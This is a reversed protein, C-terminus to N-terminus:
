RPSPMLKVGNTGLRSSSNLEKSGGNLALEGYYLVWDVTGHRIDPLIETIKKGVAASACLGTLAEFAANVALIEYDAPLGDDDCLIKFFACGVPSHDLVLRYIQELM